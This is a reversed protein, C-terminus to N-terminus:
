RWAFARLDSHQPNSLKPTLYYVRRGTSGRVVASESIRWELRRESRYAYGFLKRSGNRWLALGGKVSVLLSRHVSRYVVRDTTPGIVRIVYNRGRKVQELAMSSGTVFEPGALAVPELDPTDLDFPTYNQGALPARFLRTEGTLWNTYVVQRRNEVELTGRVWYRGVSRYTNGALESVTGSGAEAVLQHSETGAAGFVRCNVLFVGQSGDIPYVKDCPRYLPLDTTDGTRDDLVTLGDDDGWAVLHGGDVAAAGNVGAAVVSRHPRSVAAGSPAAAVGAAVLALTTCLRLPTPM